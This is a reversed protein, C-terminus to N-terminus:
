LWTQKNSQVTCHMASVDQQRVEAAHKAKIAPYLEPGRSGGEERLLAQPM